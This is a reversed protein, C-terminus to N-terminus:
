GSCYHDQGSVIKDALLLTRPWLFSIKDVSSAIVNVKFNIETSVFTINAVLLRIDTGLFIIGAVVFTVKVM